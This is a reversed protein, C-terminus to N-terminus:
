EAETGHRFAWQAVVVTSMQLYLTLVYNLQVQYTVEAMISRRLVGRMARNFGLSVM